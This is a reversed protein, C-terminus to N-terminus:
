FEWDMLRLWDLDVVLGLERKCDVIIVSFLREEVKWIDVSEGDEGFVERFLVVEVEGEEDEIMLLLSIYCCECLGYWYVREKECVGCIEGFVNYVVCIFFFVFLLM